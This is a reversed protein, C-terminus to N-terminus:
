GTTPASPPGPTGGPLKPRRSRGRILATSPSCPNPLAGSRDTHGPAGFRSRRGSGTRPSGTFGSGGRITGGGGCRRSSSGGGGRSPRDPGADGIHGRGIGSRVGGTSRTCAIM